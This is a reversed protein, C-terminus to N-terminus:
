QQWSNLMYHIV